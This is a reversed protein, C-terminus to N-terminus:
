NNFICSCRHYGDKLAEKLNEFKVFNEPKTKLAYPCTSYHVKGSERNGVILIQDRPVSVSAEVSREKRSSAASKGQQKEMQREVREMSRRLSTVEKGLERNKEQLQKFKEELRKEREGKKTDISKIREKLGEVDSTLGEVKKQLGGYSKANEAISISLHEMDKKVQKFAHRIKEFEGNTM